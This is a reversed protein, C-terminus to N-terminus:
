IIRVRAIILCFFIYFFPYIKKFFLIKDYM